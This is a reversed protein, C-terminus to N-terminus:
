EDEVVAGVATPVYEIVGDAAVSEKEDPFAPPYELV